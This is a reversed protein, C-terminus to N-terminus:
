CLDKLNIKLVLFSFAFSLSCLYFKCSKVILNM